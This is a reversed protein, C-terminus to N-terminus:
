LRVIVTALRLPVHDPVRTVVPVSDKVADKVCFPAATVPVIFRAPKLPRVSGTCGPVILLLPAIVIRQFTSGKLSKVNEPWISADPRRTVPVTAPDPKLPCGKVIFLCYARGRAIAPLFILGAGQREPEDAVDVKRVNVANVVPAGIGARPVAVIGLM